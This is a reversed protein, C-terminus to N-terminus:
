DGERFRSEDDDDDPKYKDHEDNERKLHKLFEEQVKLQKKQIEEQIKISESTALSSTPEVYPETWILTVDDFHFGWGTGGVFPFIRREKRLSWLYRFLKIPRLLREGILTRRRVYESWDEAIQLATEKPMRLWHTTGGSLHVAMKYEESAM